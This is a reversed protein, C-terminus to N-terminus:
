KSRQQRARPRARVLTVLLAILIGDVILHRHGGPDTSGAAIGTPRIRVIPFWRAREAVVADAAGRGVLTGRRVATGMARDLAWFAVVYEAPDTVEAAEGSFAAGGPLRVEVRPDAAINRLWHTEPGFGAMVYVVGDRIAYCLGADRPLGTTRGTTRLLLIWGGFPLSLVWGLGVRFLPAALWRNVPTLARRAPPLARLVRDSYPHHDAPASTAADM